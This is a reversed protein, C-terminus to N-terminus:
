PIGERAADIAARAENSITFDELSCHPFAKAEPMNGIPRILTNEDEWYWGNSWAWALRELDATKATLLEISERQTDNMQQLTACGQRTMTPEKRAADIAARLSDSLPLIPLPGRGLDHYNMHGQGSLRKTPQQLFWHGAKPLGPGLWGQIHKVLGWDINGRVWVLRELDAVKATLLEINERQTDKMQQLRACNECTM